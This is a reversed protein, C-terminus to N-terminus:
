TSLISPPTLFITPLYELTAAMAHSYSLQHGSPAPMRFDLEDICKKKSEFCVTSLLHLTMRAIIPRLEENHGGVVELFAEASSISSEWVRHMTDESFFPASLKRYLRSEQGDTGTMTPGFINLMGMLELPKGLANNRFLQQAADPDCTFLINGEPSVLM